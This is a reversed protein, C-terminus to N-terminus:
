TRDGKKALQLYTKSLSVLCIFIVPLALLQEANLGWYLHPVPKIFDIFFRFTMYFLMFCRYQGGPERFFPHKRNSRLWFWFIVIAVIEYLQCPYRRLGDGFDIGPDFSFGFASLVRSEIGYTQDYKGSLFCGIRGLGIGLLLPEVFRDGTKVKIGTILKAIEVFLWGFVLAGVLGKSSVLFQALKTSSFVEPHNMLVVLKAGLIAGLLAGATVARRKHSDLIRESDSKDQNEQSASATYLRFGLAVALFEFFTHVEIPLQGLSM